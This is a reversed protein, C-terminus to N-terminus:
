QIAFIDKILIRKIQKLYFDIEEFSDFHQFVIFSYIFDISKDEIDEIDTATLKSDVIKNASRLEDRKKYLAQLKKNNKLAKRKESSTLGETSKIEQKLEVFYILCQNIIVM